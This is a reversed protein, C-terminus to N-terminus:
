LNVVLCNCKSSLVKELVSCPVTWPDSPVVEEVEDVEEEEEILARFRVFSRDIVFSFNNNNRILTYFNINHFTLEEIAKFTTHM